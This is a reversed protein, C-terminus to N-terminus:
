GDVIIRRLIDTDRGGCAKYCLLSLADDSIDLGDVRRMLWRLGAVGYGGLLSGPIRCEPLCRGHRSVFEIDDQESLIASGYPLYRGLCALIMTERVYRESRDRLKYSLMRSFRSGTCYMWDPLDYLSSVDLIFSGGVPFSSKSLEMLRRDLVVKYAVGTDVFCGPALRRVGHDAPVITTAVVPACRVLMDGDITLGMYGKYRPEVWMRRM